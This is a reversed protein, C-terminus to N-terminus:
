KSRSSHWKWASAIITDLDSYRPRWGLVERARSPDAILIASDGARRPADKSPVCGGCLRAVGAVVERVSHGEGTGLNLETSEGGATLYELARVHADALDVVHIYDRIATGDPTPYDTGFINVPPAQGLAAKIVLPILHTEPDHEEGLEGELDAGAANFYRLAVGRIGYAVGYWHISREMSLKSEGYPNVPNKPHDEPIPVREPNGYVAASSSFVIYKVDRAKMTDLLVLTNVVNNWFYKQPNTMSEGVLLSAAFHLVAEIRHDKFVRELFEKNGVDGQIFPGWKVTERHGTALNDLVVPEHGERALAKATQSGIYGAGGTVLVRM